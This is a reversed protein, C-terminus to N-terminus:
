NAVTCLGAFLVSFAGVYLFSYSVPGDRETKVPRFTNIRMFQRTNRGTKNEASIAILANGPDNAILEFGEINSDAARLIGQAENYWLRDGTKIHTFPDSKFKGDKGVESSEKVTCEFLRQKNKVDRAFAEVSSFDLLAIITVALGFALKPSVRKM